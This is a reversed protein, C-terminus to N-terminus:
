SAAAVTRRGVTPIGDIVSSPIPDDALRWLVPLTAASQLLEERAKILTETEDPRVVYFATPKEPSDTFLVAALARGPGMNYKLPKVFARGTAVSYDVIVAETEDCVPIWEATTAMLTLDEITVIGSPKVSLTGFALLHGHGETRSFMELETEFRRRITGYLEESMYLPDDPVNKAIVKYGYTSPAIEKVEVLFMMLERAAKHSAVTQLLARRRLRIEDKAEVKFPEPIFLRRNLRMGKATMRAAAGLLRSRIVWWNRKGKMGPKWHTLEAQDWLYHLIARFGARSSSVKGDQVDETTDEPHAEAPAASNRPQKKLPFGLRLEVDGTM